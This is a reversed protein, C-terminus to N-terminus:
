MQNLKLQIVKTGVVTGELQLYFIDYYMTLAILNEDWIYIYTFLM